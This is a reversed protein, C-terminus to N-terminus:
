PASPHILDVEVSDNWNGFLWFAFAFGVAGGLTLVYVYVINDIIRAMYGSFKFTLREDTQEAPMFRHRQFIDIVRAAEGRLDGNSGSLLAALEAKAANYLDNSDSKEKLALIVGIVFGALAPVFIYILM